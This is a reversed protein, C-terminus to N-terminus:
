FQEMDDIDGMMSDDGWDDTSEYSDEELDDDFTLEVDIEALKDALVGIITIPDREDWSQFVELMFEEAVLESRDELVQLENESFCAVAEESFGEGEDDTQASDEAQDRLSIVDYKSLHIHM